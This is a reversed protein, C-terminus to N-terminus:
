HPSILFYLAFLGMFTGVVVYLIASLRNLPLASQDFYDRMADAIQQLAAGQETPKIVIQGAGMWGQIAVQLEAKLSPLRLQGLSEQYPLHLRDLANHLADILSDESIGIVAYGRSNTWLVFAMALGLGLYIVVALWSVTIFFVIPLFFLAIVILIPQRARVLLPKNAVLIHAGFWIFYASAIFEGIAYVVYGGTLSTTTMSGGEDASCLFETYHKVSGRAQSKEYLQQFSGTLM